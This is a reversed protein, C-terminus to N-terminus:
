IPERKKNYLKIDELIKTHKHNTEVPFATIVGYIYDKKELVILYRFNPCYIYARISTKGPKQHYKEYYNFQGCIDKCQQKTLILILLNIYRARTFNILRDSENKGDSIIHWLRDNDKICKNNLYHKDSFANKFISVLYNYYKDFDGNFNEYEVFDFSCTM